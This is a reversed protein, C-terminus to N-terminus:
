ELGVIYTDYGNRYHPTLGCAQYFARAGIAGDIKLASSGRLKASSIAHQLLKKGFGKRRHAAFVDFLQLRTSDRFHTIVYAGVVEDGVRLGTYSVPAKRKQMKKIGTWVHGNEKQPHSEAIRTWQEVSFTEFQEM